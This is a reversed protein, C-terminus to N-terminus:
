EVIMKRSIKNEGATVTYFYVGASLDNAHISITHSGASRSGYNTSSVLQGTLTYVDISLDTSKNLGITLFTEERFPNPFNQSVSTINQEENGEGIGQITFDADSFSFDKIYKFRVPALPDNPDMEEYTLPILYNNDTELCYKSAIFMYAQWMGESFLTVNTPGDEVPSGLTKLYTIPDFGRIWINPRQNDTEDELDTDLWSIFIKDASTNTTIQIRNDESIDGFTGRFTRPRGMEEVEWSEGGNRTFIDVAGLYGEATVISFNDSGTPGIIVAIHLNGWADVAIDHDFATTYSIEERAPVPAEFLEAILEDTLHNYVIGGIGNAGDLQIFHPGDWNEGGDTTKWYSPYVNRYGSQEEAEGTNVLMTIYGTIGDPGFAVKEDSTFGMEDDIPADLLEFEFDFDLNSDNWTGKSVILNGEYVDDVLNYNDNIAIQMGETTLDYGNPVGYYVDDGLPLHKTHYSTDGISAVGYYYGGWIDNTGWLTPGFFAVYAENPDTIGPPSFISHNPYRAADLYYEGGENESAIYFEINNEWTEGGDKSIDYGLDGSYGGPDDEGGMRHINTITNLAPDAWVLSRQGGGYGYGYINASTGLDVVSVINIDRDSPATVKKKETFTKTIASESVPEVGILEPNEAKKEKTDIKFQYAQQSFAVFGICIALVLLTIKKM